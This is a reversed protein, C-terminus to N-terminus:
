KRVNNDSKSMLKIQESKSLANNKSLQIKM